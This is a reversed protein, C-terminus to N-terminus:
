IIPINRFTAWSFLAHTGAHGLMRHLDLIESNSINSSLSPKPSHWIPKHHLTVKTDERNKVSWPHKNVLKTKPIPTRVQWNPDHQLTVKTDSTNIVKWLTKNSIILKSTMLAALKDAKDNHAHTPDTKSKHADMHTVYIKINKSAEAIAMWDERSWIDKGNIKWDSQQWKPLPV